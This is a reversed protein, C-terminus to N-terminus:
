RVPRLVQRLVPPLVDAHQVDEPQPRPAVEHRPVARPLVHHSAPQDSQRDTNRTQHGLAFQGWTGASPHPFCQAAWERIRGGGGAPGSKLMKVAYSSLSILSLSSFLIFLIILGSMLCPSPILVNVDFQSVSIYTFWLLNFFILTLLIKAMRIQLSRNSSLVRASWWLLFLITSYRIGYKINYFM